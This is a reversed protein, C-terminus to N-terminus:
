RVPAIADATTPPSRLHHWGVCLCPSKQDPYSGNPLMSGSIKGGSGAAGTGCRIGALGMTFPRPDAAARSGTWPLRTDFGPKGEGYAILQNFSWVSLAVEEQEPLKDLWLLSFIQKEAHHSNGLYM